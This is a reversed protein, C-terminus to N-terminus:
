DNCVMQEMGESPKEVVKPKHEQHWILRAWPRWNAGDQNDAQDGFFYQPAKIKMPKSALYNEWSKALLSGSIEPSSKCLRDLREALKAMDIRIKRGDPDEEPTSHLIANGADAVDPPYVSFPEVGPKKRKKKSPVYTGEEKSKGQGQGADDLCPPECQTPMDTRLANANVKNWRHFASVRAKAGRMDAEARDMELRPSIMRSPNDPDTIFFSTIWVSHTRIAKAGIGLMNGLMGLNSPISGEEWEFSWLTQLIGRQEYNLCRVKTDSLYEKAWFKFWLQAM